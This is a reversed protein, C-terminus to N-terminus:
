IRGDDHATWIFGDESKKPLSSSRSGTISRLNQSRRATFEEFKSAPYCGSDGKLKSSLGVVRNM